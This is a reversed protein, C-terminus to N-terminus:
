EAICKNKFVFHQQFRSCEHKHISIEQKGGYPDPFDEQGFYCQQQEVCYPTQLLGGGKSRVCWTCGMRLYCGRTFLLM